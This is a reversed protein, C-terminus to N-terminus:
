EYSVEHTYQTLSHNPAQDRSVRIYVWTVHSVGMIGEVQSKVHVEYALRASSEEGDCMLNRPPGLPLTHTQKHTYFVVKLSSSSTFAGTNKM